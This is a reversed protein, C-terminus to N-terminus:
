VVDHTTYNSMMPIKSMKCSTEDADALKSSTSTHSAPMKEPGVYPVKVSSGPPWTMTSHVVSSGFVRCNHVGDCKPNERVRYEGLSDDVGKSKPKKYIRCTDSSIKLKVLTICSLFNCLV